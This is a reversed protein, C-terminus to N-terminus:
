LWKLVEDYYTLKQDLEAAKERSSAYRLDLKAKIHDLEKIKNIVFDRILPDKHHILVPSLEYDMPKHSFGLVDPNYRVKFYEYFRGDEDRVLNESIITYHGNYIYERLVEPNQAPQLVMFRLQEVALPAEIIIQKIMEGGMGAIIVGTVEGPKLVKLGDGLRFEIQHFVEQQNALTVAKQLPQPNIDSAIALKVKKRKILEVPVYGHDTGIDAISECPDTLEILKELRDNLKM